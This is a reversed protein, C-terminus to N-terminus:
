CGDTEGHPLALVGTRRAQAAALAAALAARAQPFADLVDDLLGSFARWQETELFQADSLAVPRGELEAAMRGLLELAARCERLLLAVARLDGSAEATDLNSLARVRLKEAERLLTDARGAENAAAARAVRRAIHGGVAHRRVAAESLGFTAAIRRNPERHSALLKDIEVRRPHTCVSCLRAMDTITYLGKPCDVRCETPM